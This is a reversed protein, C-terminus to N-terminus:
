IDTFTFSFPVWKALRLSMGELIEIDTVGQPIAIRQEAALGQTDVRRRIETRQHAEILQLAPLRDDRMIILEKHLFELGNWPLNYAERVIAYVAVAAVVTALIVLAINADEVSLTM